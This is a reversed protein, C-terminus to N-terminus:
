LNDVGHQNIYVQDEQSLFNIIDILSHGSFDIHTIEKLTSIINGHLIMNKKMQTRMQQYEKVEAKTPKDQVELLISALKFHEEQLQQIDM